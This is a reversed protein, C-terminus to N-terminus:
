LLFVFPSNVSYCNKCVSGQTATEEDLLCYVHRYVYLFFSSSTQIVLVRNMNHYIVYMRCRALKKSKKEMSSYILILLVFYSGCSLVIVGHWIKSHWRSLVPRGLIHSSGSHFSDADRFLCCVDCSHFSLSFQGCLFPVDDTFCNKKHKEKVM